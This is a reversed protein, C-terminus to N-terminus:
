APRDTRNEPLKGFDFSVARVVDLAFRARAAQAHGSPDDRRATGHLMVGRIEFYSPFQEVICCARPDADLLPVIPDDAWVEFVAAGSASMAFAAPAGEPAGDGLAAIVAEDRSRLFTEIEAPSMSIDPRRSM